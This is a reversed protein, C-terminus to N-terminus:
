DCVCCSQTVVPKFITIKQELITMFIGEGGGGLFIAFKKTKAIWGATFLPPTLLASATLTLSMHCTVCSVCFMVHSVKKTDLTDTSIDACM